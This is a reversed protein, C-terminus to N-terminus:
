PTAESLVTRTLEIDMAVKNSSSHARTIDLSDIRLLLTSRELRKLYELAVALTADPVRFRIQYEQYGDGEERLLGEKLEPIHVLYKTKDSLKSHTSHAKPNKLALRYVERRLSDHIEAKTQATTHSTLVKKFAKDVSAQHEQQTHLNVLEMEANAIQTDLGELSRNGLIYISLVVVVSVVVLTIRFLTQERPSLSNIRNM